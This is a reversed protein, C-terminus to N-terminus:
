FIKPKEKPNKSRILRVESSTTSSINIEVYDMSRTNGISLYFTSDKEEYIVVDEKQTTGIEHRYIKYPLLTEKDRLVYFLYKGDASWAMDGSTNELSLNETINNTLDKFRIKYQRRGNTDEAYAM